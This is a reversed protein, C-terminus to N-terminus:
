LEKSLLELLERQLIIVINSESTGDAKFRSLVLIIMATEAKTLNLRREPKISRISLLRNIKILLKDFAKEILLYFIKVDINDAKVFGVMTNVLAIHILEIQAVTSKYRIMTETQRSTAM